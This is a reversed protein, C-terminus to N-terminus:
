VPGRGPGATDRCISYGWPSIFLPIHHIEDARKIEFTVTVTPFFCSPNYAGIDFSLRYIGPAASEGFDQIIGEMTTIGRGVEKWGHGSIFLDLEVPIRSGPMGRAIDTIQTTIMM